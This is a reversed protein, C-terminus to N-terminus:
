RGRVGGEDFTLTARADGPIVAPTSCPRWSGGLFQWWGWVAPDAPPQAFRPLITSVFGEARFGHQADAVSMGAGFEHSHFQVPLWLGEDGAFNFLRDLARESIQFLNHRRLIGADGAMAVSCIEDHGAEAMLFGGTELRLSGYTRTEAAVADVVGSSVTLELTTM